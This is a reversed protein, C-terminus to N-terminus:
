LFFKSYKNNITKANKKKKWCQLSNQDVEM